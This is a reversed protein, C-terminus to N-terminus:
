SPRVMRGHLIIYLDLTNALTVTAATDFDMTVTFSQGPQVTVKTQFPYMAVGAGGGANDGNITTNNATTSIAEYPNMVPVMILPLTLIDKDIVRFRLSGGQHIMARDVANGAAAQSVHVFGMSIGWFERLKSQEINPTDMNTDRTTKAKSATATGVILTATGGKAISYFSIQSPITTTVNVRDYLPQWFIEPSEIKQVRNAQMKAIPGAGRSRMQGQGYYSEM